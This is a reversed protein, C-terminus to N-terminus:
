DSWHCVCRFVTGDLNPELWVFAVTNHSAGAAGAWAQKERVACTKGNTVVTHDASSQPENNTSGARLMVAPGVACLTTTM